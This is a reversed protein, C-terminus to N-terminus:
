EIAKREKLVGNNWSEVVGLADNIIDGTFPLEGDLIITADGIDFGNNGGVIDNPLTVCRVNRAWVPRECECKHCGNWTKGDVTVSEGTATWNLWAVKVANTIYDGQYEVYRVPSVPFQQNFWVWQTDVTGTSTEKVVYGTLNPRDTEPAFSLAYSVSETAMQDQVALLDNAAKIASQRAEDAVSGAEKAAEDVAETEAVTIIVGSADIIHNDETAMVAQRTWGLNEVEQSDISIYDAQAKPEDAVVCLAAVSLLAVTIIGNLKM